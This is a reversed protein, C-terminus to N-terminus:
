IWRGDFEVELGDIDHGLIKRMSLAEKIVKTMLKTNIIAKIKM